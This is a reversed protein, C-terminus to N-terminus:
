EFIMNEIFASSFYEDEPLNFEESQGIIRRLEEDASRQPFGPNLLYKVAGGLSSNGALTVKPVLEPPILGIGAASEMNLNFGFGGAICLTQIDKYELLTHHLLADLGSRIASKGLQLERVDKQCFVIDRGQPDKDLFIDDAQVERDFSGSPLILDNKLGQYVIDVVGSGCIGIPAKNGITKVEFKGNRFQAESIAGSVSGTGWLINGGEFAPGAATATCLIKGHHILAIEGNTGIDMFLVPQQGSVLETCFIGASIDAGVYTSIGPLVATECSLDGRFLERYNMSVLDLTVPTFPAQGLTACSLNLLLHIMATNGAIAIKCIDDPAASVEAILAIIGEEIQTRICSSLLALDGSVARQIRSIVDTGYERQRNVASYRAPIKGTRLDVLAFGLTTTGIDIAIGYLPDTKGGIHIIRGRDRFIYFRDEAKKEALSGPNGGQADALKSLERLEALSKGPLGASPIGGPGSGTESKNKSDTQCAYSQASRQLIFETGPDFSTKNGSDFNDVVSFQQDGTDPIEISIDEQPFAACCLRWGMELEAANFRDRDSDTVPLFGATIRVGCKGCNGTGGCDSPISVGASRLAELLNEGEINISPNKEGSIQVTIAM